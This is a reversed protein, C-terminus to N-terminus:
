PMPRIKVNSGSVVGYREIASGKNMALTLWGSSDVLLVPEGEAVDSFTKGLPVVLANHGVTVELRERKLGLAGLDEGPVNFRLSGFRDAELVEGFM